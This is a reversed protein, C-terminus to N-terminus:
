PKLSCRAVGLLSGVSFVLARLFIFGPSILGLTRDERFVRLSFPFSSLVVIFCFLLGLHLLGPVLWSLSFLPFSLAMLLTQIKIVGPTYSDKVAKDPYRRYVVMRWYGRGFKLKLYKVFTDPHTHYVFARPNFVLKHGAAVLRYSFDTDENNAVPFSEDFGGMEKFIRKRFAASYTDVMDISAHRKLFDYRDEFEAQAFRATLQHQRTKYAGKVGVVELDEFPLVMQHLWRRDAVCDADAFLIIDGEAENAGKNRAAAPGRNTQYICKVNFQRAIKSTDDASGDDVVIVEYDKKPVSQQGLAELCTPLTIEANFAPVIVSFKLLSISSKSLM